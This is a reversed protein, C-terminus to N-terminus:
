RTPMKLGAELAQRHAAAYDGAADSASVLSGSHEYIRAILEKYQSNPLPAAENLILIASETAAAPARASGLM